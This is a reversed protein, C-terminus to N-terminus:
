KEANAQPSVVNLRMALTCQNGEVNAQAYFLRSQEPIWDEAALFVTRQTQGEVILVGNLGIDNVIVGHPLNFVDFAIRGAFGRREVSLRIQTEQGPVINVEAVVPIEVPPRVLGERTASLKFRGLTHQKFKASHKFVALLIRGATVELPSVLELEVFHSPDEENRPVAYVDGEGKKAIAWATESDGDVIWAPNFGEQTYDAFVADFELKEKATPDAPDVLYLELESLVLNGNDPNRGPAGAPLTQDGLVDLRIGTLKGTQLGYKVTYLDNEPTEGTALLSQDEKKILETKGETFWAMPKLVQYERDDRSWFETAPLETVTVPTMHAVVKSADAIKMEGLVGGDIMVDQGSIVAKATVKGWQNGQPANAHAHAHVVGRTQTHGAQIVLPSTATFGAPMNTIDIQIPGNYGDIRNASITFAKGGGRNITPNAGGITVGYSPEPRRVIVDYHFADGHHDRVDSIRLFYRGDAPAAFHLKSDRGQKRDSSDDNEYNVTFVPLGNDPLQTGVPYPRVVYAVQGLPHSRPTTDFYGQRAGNEPYFLSDSDPGRRQRFHKLVEGNVYLYEDLDTEDYNAFRFGKQDSSVSRFEILSDRLSRLVVRPVPIGSSDLIEIKSDLMSKNREANVELIWQDGRIADFGFLDDEIAVTRDKKEPNFIKGQFNVPLSIVKATQVSNNPEEEQIAPIEARPIVGEYRVVPMFDELADANFVEGTQGKATEYVDVSGDLRGAVFGRSAIPAVASVWDAPSSYSAINAMLTTDWLKVLNDEGASLMRSGDLSYAIDVIAQEHAYVSSLLPNTGEKFNSSLSWTRIRNDVGAAALTKGDPAIAICYLEKQPEKLTELRKGTELDWLKVTRDGSATAVMKGNPHFAVDYVAGNHGEIEQLKAGDEIKWIILRKDYGVSALVSNDSSIKAAYVSDRHGRSRRILSWDVTKFLSIEGFLGTEGAGAVLLSGDKSFAVGNVVGTLGDLLAIQKGESLTKIEVRGYQAIALLEGDPSVAVSNIPDRVKGLLEIKPTILMPQVANGDPGRAGSAIWTRLMELETESPADNGEPPMKPKAEGTIVRVLRSLDARGPLLVAGGKGGKILGDFSELNLGGEADDANHCAVCYKTLLPAVESNFGPVNNKQPIQGQLSSCCVVFMFVFISKKM